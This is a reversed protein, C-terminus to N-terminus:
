RVTLMKSMKLVRMSLEKIKGDFDVTLIVDSRDPSIERKLIKGEGYRKHILVQGTEITRYEAAADFDGSEFPDSSSCVSSATKRLPASCFIEASFSSYADKYTFITLKNKARTMAVYFLRREEEWANEEEKNGPPPVCPFSGDASDILFVSDYELGKSSHITSLFLGEESNENTEISRCLSSLNARFLNPRVNMQAALAKLTYIKVSEEPDDSDTYGIRETIVNLADGVNNSRAILYLNEKAENVTRVKWPQGKYLSLLANLVQVNREEALRVAEEAEAKKIYCKIKGYIRMFLETNKPSYAFEIIDCVEDVTKHTFFATNIQRCRYPIGRQVFLNIIPLASENDRYLIATDEPKRNALSCLFEYQDNRHAFEKKEVAAGAERVTFMNKCHRNRNRGIFASAAKVINGTSRYNQELYLIKADSYDEGFNTLADPYAALFGYISQDEDGVM